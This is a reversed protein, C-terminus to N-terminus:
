TVYLPTLYLYSLICYASALNLTKMESILLVQKGSLLAIINYRPMVEYATAINRAVSDEAATIFILKLNYM